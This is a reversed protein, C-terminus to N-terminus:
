GRAGELVRVETLFNQVVQAAAEPQDINPSHSSDLTATWCRDLASVLHHMWEPELLEDREGAILLVPTTVGELTAPYADERARPTLAPNSVRMAAIAEFAGARLTNHYRREVLEDFGPFPDVVLRLLREMAKLDPEPYDLLGETSKSTRWPGGTGSVSVVSAIPLHWSGGELARLVVSGGFSSGLLHVPETLALCRYVDAIQQLRSAYPPRDFHVVKDSGGFGVLDPAIIRYNDALLPAFSGFATAADAGFMGDHLLFVVPADRPGWELYETRIGGAHVVRRDGM